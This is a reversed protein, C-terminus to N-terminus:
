LIQGLVDAVLNTQASTFLCVKGAKPGSKPVSVIVLNARTAGAVYNLNSATPRAQGCPWVTVYGPGAAGTATVNLLVTTAGAAVGGRSTVTVETESGAPRITNVGDDVPNTETSRSDLLRAPTLPAMTSGTPVAGVVDIIVETNRNAIVCVKGAGSLGVFVANAVVSGATVNINSTTPPTAGCPYVTVYGAATTGSATVNLMVSGTGAPVGGRGSVQLERVVLPALAGTRQSIGDDTTGAPRTDMLRRPPLTGYRSAAPMYGNVDVIVNATASTFICVTGDGGLGVVAANAATTGPVYNLTSTTPPTEGCPYVRVYGPGSAGNVTINLSAALADPPIGTRTAVRLQTTSGAARIGLNQSEGDVTVMTNTSIGTAPNTTGTAPRTEMLRAPTLGVFVKDAVLEYAGIDCIISGNGDSDIPRSLVDNPPGSVGRQDYFGCYSNDAADIAPSTVKLGHTRTSGGNLSLPRLQPDINSKDNPGTLSCSGDSDLSNGVSNIVRQDNSVNCNKGSNYAMLTNRIQTTLISQLGGAQGVGTAANNAITSSTIWTNGENMVGGGKFASNSSVTSTYLNVYSTADTLVGGGKSGTGRARNWTISSHFVDVSATAAYIGGGGIANATNGSIDSRSTFLSGAVYIGGGGSSSSNTSISSDYLEASATDHVCLGGGTQASNNFLRVQNMTLMGTNVEIAGGCGAPVAGGTLTLGKLTLSGNQVQFVRNGPPAVLTVKNKGDIQVSGNTLYTLDLQFSIPQPGCNFEIRQTYQNFAAKLAALTCSAATGNGVINNGNSPTSFTQTAGTVLGGGSPIYRVRWYYQTNPQIAFSGGGPGPVWDSWALLAQMNVPVAAPDTFAITAFTSSTSIDFYATGAQGSPKYIFASSKVTFNGSNPVPLFETSQSPYLVASSTGNFVFINQKPQLLPNDWGDLMQVNATFQSGFMVSNSTVPIRFEWTAGQPLPWTNARASDVSPVWVAGPHYPSNPLSQPCQSALIAAGGAFCRVPNTGSIALSLGPPLSLDLGFRQGACPNGLGAVYVQLYFVQNVAPQGAEPDGYFGVYTGAGAEPYPSGFIIGACSIVQSYQISGSYLANGAASVPSPTPTAVAGVTATLVVVAALLSRLFPRYRIM